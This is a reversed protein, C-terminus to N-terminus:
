QVITRDMGFLDKFFSILKEFFGAKVTITQSDSFETYENGDEDVLVVTVTATGAKVAEVECSDGYTTLKVAGSDTTWKFALGEMADEEAPEGDFLLTATLRLTDGYNLTSSGTNNNIEVSFKMRTACVAKHITWNMSGYITEGCTECYNVVGECFMDHAVSGNTVTEGCKTCVYEDSDAFAVSTCSAAIMVAMIVSMIKTLTKKM